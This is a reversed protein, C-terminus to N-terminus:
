RGLADGLGLGQELLSVTIDLSPAPGDVEACAGLQGLRVRGQRLGPRRRFGGLRDRESGGGCRKGAVGAVAAGVKLVPVGLPTLLVKVPEESPSKRM